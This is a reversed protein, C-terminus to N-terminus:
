QVRLQLERRSEQNQYPQMEMGISSEAVDTAPYHFSGMEDFYTGVPLLDLNAVEMDSFESPISLMSYWSVARM